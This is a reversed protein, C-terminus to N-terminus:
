KEIKAKFEDLFLNSLVVYLFTLFISLVIIGLGLVIGITISTNPLFIRFLEPAFGLISIFLFYVILVILSLTYSITNSIKILKNLDKSILSPKM